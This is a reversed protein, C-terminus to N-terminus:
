LVKDAASVVGDTLQRGAVFVSTSRVTLAPITQSSM